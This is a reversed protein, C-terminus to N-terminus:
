SFRFKKTPPGVAAAIDDLLTRPPSGVHATSRAILSSAINPIIGESVTRNYPGRFPPVVGISNGVSPNAEFQPSQSSHMGLPRASPAGPGFTTSRQLARRRTSSSYELAYMPRGTQPCTTLVMSENGPADGQLPITSTGSYVHSTEANQFACTNNFSVLNMNSSDNVLASRIEGGYQPPLDGPPQQVNEPGESQEQGAFTKSAALTILRALHPSPKAQLRSIDAFQVQAESPPASAPPGISGEARASRASAWPDYLKISFDSPLQM